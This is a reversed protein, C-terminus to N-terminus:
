VTEVEKKVKKKNKIRKKKYEEKIINKGRKNQREIKQKKEKDNKWNM